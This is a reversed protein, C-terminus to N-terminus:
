PFLWVATRETIWLRISEFGFRRTSYSKWSNWRTTGSVHLFYPLAPTKGAKRTKNLFLVYKQAPAVGAYSVPNRSFALEKGGQKERM